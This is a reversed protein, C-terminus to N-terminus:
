RLHAANWTAKGSDRIDHRLLFSKLRQKAIRLDSSIDERARCLDRISKDELSPVYVPNLDGSRLQRALQLADRRDTKVRDGPKRSILSPAVVICEESKNRLYRYLWYGCLGAEYVFRLKAAKSHLQRVLKDIDCHRTGIRGLHIAESNRKEPTYAVEISDKHQDMGVSLTISHKM